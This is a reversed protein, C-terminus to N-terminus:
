RQQVYMLELPIWCELTLSTQSHIIVVIHLKSRRKVANEMDIYLQHNVQILVGNWERQLSKFGDVIFIKGDADNILATCFM